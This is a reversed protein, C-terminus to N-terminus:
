TPVIIHIQKQESKLLLRRLATDAGLFVDDTYTVTAARDPSARDLLLAVHMRPTPVSYLTRDRGERLPLIPLSDAIAVYLTSYIDEM